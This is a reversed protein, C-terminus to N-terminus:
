EVGSKVNPALFRADWPIREPLAPYCSSCRPVKYISHRQAMGDQFSHEIMAGLTRPPLKLLVQALELVFLRVMADHFVPHVPSPAPIIDEFRARYSMFAQMEASSSHSLQRRNACELCASNRPIVYPGIRGFVGECGGFLIPIDAEIAIDNLLRAFPLRYPFNWSVLLTPQSALRVQVEALAAACSTDPEIAIIDDTLDAARLGSALSHHSAVPAIIIPRLSSRSALMTHPDSGLYAYFQALPAPERDTIPTTSWYLCNTAILLDILYDLFAHERGTIQAARAVIEERQGGHALASILAQVGTTVPPSTFTATYNSFVIHLQDSSQELISAGPRLRLQLVSEKHHGELDTSVISDHHTIPM